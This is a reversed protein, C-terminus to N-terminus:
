LNVLGSITNNNSTIQKRLKKNEETLKRIKDVLQVKSLELLKTDEELAKIKRRLEKGGRELLSSMKNGEM